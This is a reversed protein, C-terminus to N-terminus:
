LHNVLDFMPQGSHISVSSELTFVAVWHLLGQRLQPLKHDFFVERAHKLMNWRQTCQEVFVEADLLYARLETCSGHAALANQNKEIAIKLAASIAGLEKCERKFQRVESVLSIIKQLTKLIFSVLTAITGPEM